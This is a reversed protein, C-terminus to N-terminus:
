FSVRWKREAGACCAIEERGDTAEGGVGELGDNVNVHKSGVVRQFSGDRVEEFGGSGTGVGALVGVSAAADDEYGCRQM